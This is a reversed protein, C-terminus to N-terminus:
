LSAGHMSPAEKEPLVAVVLQLLMEGSLLDSTLALVLDGITGSDLISSLSM